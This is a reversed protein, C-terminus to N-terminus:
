AAKMNRTKVDFVVAAVLVLGRILYQMSIGVGMLNMGNTLSAMVLAGTIAGTVKGVGGAASAGGIFAAAIADLEFMQGASPTASNLRATYLIGSLAALTGMSGFVFLTIKEVSIGSLNAAEPNGGVAYIHRGLVTLNMMIHYVIVVILVILMTISLGKYTAQLWTISLIALSMIVQKVIFIETSSNEFGYQQKKQRGYLSIGILLLVGIIGILLTLLHVELNGLKLVALSDIYGNGIKELGENKPLITESNTVELLLGRFVLMGALTTVFAPIKVKAVFFGNILGIAAGLALSLPIVLKLSMGTDRLLLATVAGIFGALYGVSLDIHRIIIILTMGVGLVAIYGTQLFLNNINRPSMFLGQTMFYFFIWITILAIYMGYERINNRISM